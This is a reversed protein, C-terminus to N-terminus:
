SKLSFYFKSPPAVLLSRLEFPLDNWASPGVVSFARRHMIALRVLLVLLEGMAASRLVRRGALVSVPCFLDCLYSAACRLVCRSVMATIRYQIWQSVPLLHLLDRMYATSSSFKSLGAVLRAASHLNVTTM